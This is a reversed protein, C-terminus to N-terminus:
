GGYGDTAMQMTVEGITGTVMIQNGDSCFFEPLIKTKFLCTLDGAPICQVLTLMRDVEMWNDIVVQSIDSSEMLFGFSEILRMRVDQYRAARNKPKVCLHMEDGVKQPATSYPLPQLNEDCEEFVDAIITPISSQAYSLYPAVALFLLVTLFSSVMTQSSMSSQLIVKM